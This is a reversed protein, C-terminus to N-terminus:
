KKNNKGDVGSITWYPVKSQGNCEEDGEQEIPRPSHAITISNLIIELQCNPCNEENPCNDALDCRKRIEARPVVITVEHPIDIDMQRSLAIELGALSLTIEDKLLEEQCTSTESFCHNPINRSKKRKNQLRSPLMEKFWTKVGALWKMM